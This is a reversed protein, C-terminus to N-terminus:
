ITRSLRKLSSIDVEYKNGYTRPSPIEEKPGYFLLKFDDDKYQVVFFDDFQDFTNKNITIFSNDQATTKVSIRRGNKIVDYGHQNTVKALEGNTYLVCFFEGLRGILHRLETAKCGLINMEFRLMELYEEYLKKIQTIGITCQKITQDKYLLLQGNDWEGVVSEYEAGKPKHFILGTYPYNEGVYRYTSRNIYIFLHKNFSIGNNYRNYCYDSLIISSPNTNYKTILRERIETSTLTDGKKEKLVEILQEYITLPIEGEHNM